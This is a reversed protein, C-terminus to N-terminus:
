SAAQKAEAAAKSKMEMISKLNLLYYIAANKLEWHAYNKTASYERRLRTPGSAIDDIAERVMEYDDGHPGFTGSVYILTEAFAIQEADLGDEQQLIRGNVDALNARLDRMAQEHREKERKLEANLENRRNINNALSM